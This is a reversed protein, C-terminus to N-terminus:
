MSRDRQRDRLTQEVAKITDQYRDRCMSICKQESFDLKDGSLSAGKSVICKKFCHEAVQQRHQKTLEEQM